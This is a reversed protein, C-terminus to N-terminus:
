RQLSVDDRCLQCRRQLSIDGKGEEYREYLKIGQAQAQPQPMQLPRELDLRGETKQSSQRLVSEYQEAKMKGRTM